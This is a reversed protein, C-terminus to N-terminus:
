PCLQKRATEISDIYCEHLTWSDSVRMAYVLGQKRKTLPWAIRDNSVTPDASRWMLRSSDANETVISTFHSRNTAFKVVSALAPQFVQILRSMDQIMPPAYTVFYDSRTQVKQGVRRRIVGYMAIYQSAFMKESYRRAFTEQTEITTTTV